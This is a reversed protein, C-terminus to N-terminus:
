QANKSTTGHSSNRRHCFRECAGSLPRDLVRDTCGELPTQSTHTVSPSSPLGRPVKPPTLHHLSIRHTKEHWWYYDSPWCEFDAIKLVNSTQLMRALLYATNETNQEFCKPPSKADRTTIQQKEQSSAQYKKFVVNSPAQAYPLNSFWWARVRKPAFDPNLNQAKQRNVHKSENMM